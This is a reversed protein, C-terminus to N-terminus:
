CLVDQICEVCGAAWFNKSADCRGPGHGHTCQNCSQKGRQTVVSKLPSPPQNTDEDRDPSTDAAAGGSDSVSLTSMQPGAGSTDGDMMESMMSFDNEGLLFQLDNFDTASTRVFLPVWPCVGCACVLVCVRTCVRLFAHVCM